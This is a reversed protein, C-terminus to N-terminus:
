IVVKNLDKYKSISQGGRKNCTIQDIQFISKNYSVFFNKNRGM